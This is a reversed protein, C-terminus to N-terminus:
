NAWGSCSGRSYRIRRRAHVAPLSVCSAFLAAGVVVFTVVDARRFEGLM